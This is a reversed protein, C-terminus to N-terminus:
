RKMFMEDLNLIVNGVVTWAAYEAADTNEPLEGLPDTAMKIAESPQAKFKEYAAEALTTLRTIEAESPERILSQRIGYEIRLRPTDGADVMGRALSQAAEVYVPDNLTVLAQLPTNTRIRRVTCVERNPADFQAMSPYPSSRRWTTYIGRRYRDVGGSTKWDTASGFAAKLGLEPQPPKVPAGYMKDSLLGSVFLTQDRVMEASVRFRPGRAYFRNFPDSRQLEDSTYSSQRYTASTVMLRVLAKLNWGGERLEVALWDLLQPHTPLEGQSGFEESTQVIGVGFLEEWHRNAIVRATLPNEDDVLWRALALRDPDAHTPLPHFAEPTGLGVKQGKSQYNGRIQVYTERRDKPALERMVPVTTAAKMSDLKSKAAALEDRLPQLLPSIGRYYNAIATRESESWESDPKRLTTIVSAPIGAWQAAASDDTWAVRFRDLLHKKHESIQDLRVTFVGDGLKRPSKLLLTLEHPKGTQPAIAWGQKADAKQRLVSSAVFGSQEHDAVASAFVIERPGGVTFEASPSPVKEPVQRWVVERAENLLTIEYGKLRDSISAGGDTRNWVVVRDVGVSAGLDIEVWPDKEIATHTVSNQHFDGDTNGDNLYEIKGGFDTSSQSPKGDVAVNRDGAFVQLEALHIMRKEGPLEVRVYRAQLSDDGKPTWSAHVKSLVFNERQESPVEIRLGTLEQGDTPFRLTYHDKEPEEGDAVVWGDESTTLTRNRAKALTPVWTTWIPESRMGSLWVKRAEILEASDQSLQKELSAIKERLEEEQSEQEETWIEITPREDRKDSDQTSNFFAFFKFYEEQTIPDYKHTHCQACAMTTGMWVAMTTNVRDVIAVNRFEEDNTGGENNTLTNRHFATAILQDETPNELLDGAIQEITFQDFPKNSNLSRIVYDRYAWITRPPDDAYGASDAYRALDLWVRAWREGFSSKQLLQDVYQEYADPREDSVFAMAEEWTPPLGTLDLAVRRALTWRDAEPSPNLGRADLQAMIFHDIANRSWNEDSVVPLSPRSPKEYSWHKAYDGGQDIWRRILEIESDTFRRGKGEPPMRMDEDDTVLRAVLESSKSDGPVIAAYGGLDEQSGEQTDLRLGAAREEEDPGHCILCNNSILPRIDRNFDVRQGSVNDALSVMLFLSVAPVLSTISAARVCALLNEFVATRSASTVCMPDSLLPPCPLSCTAMLMRRFASRDMFSPLYSGRYGLGLVLSDCRIELILVPPPKLCCGAPFM